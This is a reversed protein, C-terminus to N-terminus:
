SNLLIADGTYMNKVPLRPQDQLPDINTLERSKLGPAM